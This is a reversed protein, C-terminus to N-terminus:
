DAKEKVKWAKFEVFRKNPDFPRFAFRNYGKDILEV